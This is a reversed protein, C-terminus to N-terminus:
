LHVLDGYFWGDVIFLIDMTINGFHVDQGREGRREEERREEGKGEPYLGCENVPRVFSGTILHRDEKMVDLMWTRRLRAGQATKWELSGGKGGM